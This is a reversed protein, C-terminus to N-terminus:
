HLADMKEITGVIELIKVGFYDDVIVVEGRAIEKGNALLTVPEGALKNLEILSGKGLQLIDKLFMKKTGLVVEVTINVDFLNEIPNSHGGEEEEQELQMFQAKSITSKEDFQISETAGIQTSLEEAEEPTLDKTDM